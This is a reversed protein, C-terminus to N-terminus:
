CCQLVVHFHVVSQFGHSCQWCVIKRFVIRTIPVECKEAIIQQLKRGCTDFLILIMKFSRKMISFNRCLIGCGGVAVICKPFRGSAVFCAALSM